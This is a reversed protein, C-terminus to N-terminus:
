ILIINNSNIKNFRRMLGDGDDNRNIQDDDAIDNDQGDIFSIGSKNQLKLPLLQVKIIIAATDEDEVSFKVADKGDDFWAEMANMHRLHGQRNLTINGELIASFTPGLVQHEGMNDGAPLGLTQCRFIYEQMEDLELEVESIIKSTLGAVDDEIEEDNNILEWRWLIAGDHGTSIRSTGQMVIAEHTSLMGMDGLGISGQLCFLLRSAGGTSFEAWGGSSLNDESLIFRYKAM